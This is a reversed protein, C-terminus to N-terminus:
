KDQYDIMLEELSPLRYEAAAAEREFPYAFVVNGDDDTTLENPNLEYISLDGDADAQLERLRDLANERRDECGLLCLGDKIFYYMSM